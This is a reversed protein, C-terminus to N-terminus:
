QVSGKLVETYHPLTVGSDADYITVQLHTFKEFDSFAAIQARYVWGDGADAPTAFWYHHSIRGRRRMLIGMITDYWADHKALQREAKAEHRRQKRKALQVKIFKLM